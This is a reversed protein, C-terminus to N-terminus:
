HAQVMYNGCFSQLKMQSLMMLSINSIEFYVRNLPVLNSFILNQFWLLNSITRYKITCGPMSDYMKNKRIFGSLLLIRLTGNLSHGYVPLKPETFNKLSVKMLDATESNPDPQTQSHGTDLLTSPFLEMFLLAPLGSRLPKDRQQFQSVTPLM